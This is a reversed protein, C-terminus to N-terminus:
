DFFVVEIAEFDCFVEFGKSYRRESKFFVVFAYSIKIKFLMNM